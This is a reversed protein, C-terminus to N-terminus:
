DRQKILLEAQKIRNSSALRDRGLDDKLRAIEETVNLKQKALEMQQMTRQADFDQRMMFEERKREVDQAKINLEKDRLAVLPDPPPMPPMFAQNVQAMLGAEVQAVDRAVAEYLRQLMAQAELPPMQQLMQITQLYEPDQSNQMEVLEAARLSVHQYVHAQVAGMVVPNAMVSSTAAFSLHVNIHADHDQFEFATLLKM